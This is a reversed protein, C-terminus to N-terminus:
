IRQYIEKDIYKSEKVIEQTSLTEKLTDIEQQLAVVKANRKGILYDMQSDMLKEHDTNIRQEFITVHEKYRELEASVSENIIKNMQNEKDLIIFALQEEDLIQGAEQAKVLILKDKAQGTAYNGRSTTAIGRNGTGTFSQTQRRQVQQVTVRGDQITAQNKSNSSMRLQNNSPLFRLAMASLFTMAKNICEIPDEGQENAHREHQCLYAYLKDYNTTYLSKALKVDTVFKSWEPPLANLFKTNVQVQQMTMKREQYSLETGKMLLKVRDWIDKAAEQHNVFAYVDPPLGNLIINKAEVDCDDQLQQTRIQHKKANEEIAKFCGEDCQSTKMRVEVIKTYSSREEMRLHLGLLRGM